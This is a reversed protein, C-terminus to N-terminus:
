AFVINCAELLMRKALQLLGQIPDHSTLTLSLKNNVTVVGVTQAGPNRALVMPGWMAKIKMSGFDTHYSIQTLNTLLLQHSFAHTLTEEIADLDMGAYFIDRCGTTVAKNWEENRNTDISSKVTRALEWFDVKDSFDYPAVIFNTLLACEDGLKLDKRVSAPHLVRITDHWEHSLHRGALMLAAALAGHVSTNESRSKQLLVSTLESTLELREVKVMKRVTNPGRSASTTSTGTNETVNAPPLEFLDDLSPPASLSQLSEGSLHQVVDRIILSASLGDAISHNVVFVFISLDAQQIVVARAMPARQHDIPQELEKELIPNWDAGAAVQIIQLPIPQPVVRELNLSNYHNGSIKASLNPHRLQTANLAARWEAITAKGEIEAALAFHLMAKQDLVWFIKENTGLPRVEYKIM